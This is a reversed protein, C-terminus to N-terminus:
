GNESGDVGDVDKGGGGESHRVGVGLGELGGEEYEWLFGEKGGEREDEPAVYLPRKAAREWFVFSREGILGRFDKGIRLLAQYFEEAAEECGLVRLSRIMRTIRLHNHNFRM